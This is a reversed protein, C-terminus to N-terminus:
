FNLFDGDIGPHGGEPVAAELHDDVAFGGKFFDQLFNRRILHLEAGVNACLRIINGTNYPIEPRYLVVHVTTGIKIENLTNLLM